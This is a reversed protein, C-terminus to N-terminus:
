NNYKQLYQNFNGNILEDHDIILDELFDYDGPSEENMKCIAIYLYDAYEPTDINSLELRINNIDLNIWIDVELDEPAKKIM